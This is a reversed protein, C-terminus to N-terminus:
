IVECTEIKTLHFRVYINRASWFSTNFSDFLENFQQEYNPIATPASYHMQIPFIELKKLSEHALITQWERGNLHITSSRVKLVGLNSLNIREHFFNM